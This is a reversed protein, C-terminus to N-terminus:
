LEGIRKRVTSRGGIQRRTFRRASVAAESERCLRLVCVSTRFGTM